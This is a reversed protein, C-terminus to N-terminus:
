DVSGTSLPLPRKRADACRPTRDHWSPSVDDGVPGGAAGPRALIRASATASATSTVAKSAVAAMLVTYCQPLPRPRRHTSARAAASSAPWVVLTDDLLGRLHLDEILTPLTQDHDAATDHPDICRCTTSGHTDWGGSVKSQGRDVGRFVV